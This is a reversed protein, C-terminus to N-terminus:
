LAEQPSATSDVHARDRGAEAEPSRVQLLRKRGQRGEPSFDDNRISATSGVPESQRCLIRNAGDIESGSAITEQLKALVSHLQPVSWPPLQRHRISGGAHDHPCQRPEAGGLNLLTEVGQQRLEGALVQGIKGSRLRDHRRPDRLWEASPKRM